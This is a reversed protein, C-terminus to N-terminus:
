DTIFSFKSEKDNEKVYCSIINLLEGDQSDINSFMISDISEWIKLHLKEDTLDLDYPYDYYQNIISRLESLLDPKLGYLYSDEWLIERIFNEPIFKENTLDSDYDLLIGIHSRIEMSLKLGYTFSYNIHRSSPSIDGSKLKFDVKEKMRILFNTFWNEDDTQLEIGNSLISYISQNRKLFLYVEILESNVKGSFKDNLLCAYESLTQKQMQLILNASSLKSFFTDIEILENFFKYHLKLIAFSSDYREKEKGTLVKKGNIYEHVSFVKGKYYEIYEGHLEGDVKNFKRKLKGKGDNEHIYNTGNETLIDKNKKNLFDFLGM